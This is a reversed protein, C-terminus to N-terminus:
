TRKILLVLNFLIFLNYFLFYNLGKIKKCVESLLFLTLWYHIIYTKRKKVEFEIPALHDYIHNTPLISTLTM